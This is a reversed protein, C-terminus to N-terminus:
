YPLYAFFIYFLYFLQKKKVMFSLLKGLSSYSFHLKRICPQPAPLNKAAGAGSKKELRSRSRNKKLRSRSWPALFVRSRGAGAGWGQRQPYWSKWSLFIQLFLSMGGLFDDGM